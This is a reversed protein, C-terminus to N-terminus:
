CADVLAALLDFDLCCSGEVEVPTLVLSCAMERRFANRSFFSSRSFFSPLVESVLLLVCPLLDGEGGGGGGGGGGLCVRCGGGSTGMLLMDGSGCGEGGGTDQNRETTMGLRGAVAGPEEFGREARRPSDVGRAGLWYGAGCAGMSGGLSSSRKLLAGSSNPNERERLPPSASTGLNIVCLDRGLVGAFGGGPRYRSSRGGSGADM